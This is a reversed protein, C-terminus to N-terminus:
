GCKTLSGLSLCCPKTIRGACSGGFGFPCPDLCWPRSCNLKERLHWETTTPCLTMLMKLVNAHSVSTTWTSLSGNAKPWTRVPLRTSSYHAYTATFLLPASNSAEHAHLGM